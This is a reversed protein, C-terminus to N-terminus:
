RHIYVSRFPHAKQGEELKSVMESYRDAFNSRYSNATEWKQEMNFGNFNM